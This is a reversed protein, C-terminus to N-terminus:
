WRQFSGAMAENFWEAFQEKTDGKFEPMKHPPLTGGDKVQPAILSDSRVKESLDDLAEAAADKQEIGNIENYWEEFQELESKPKETEYQKRFALLKKAQSINEEATEGRLMGPDIGLLQAIEQKIQENDM